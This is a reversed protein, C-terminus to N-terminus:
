WNFFRFSILSCEVLVEWVLTSFWEALCLILISSLHSSTFSPTKGTASSPEQLDIEGCVLSSSMPLHLISSRVIPILLYSALTSFAWLVAEMWYLVHCLRPMKHKSCSRCLSNFLLVQKEHRSWFVIRCGTFASKGGAGFFLSWCDLSAAELAIQLMLLVFPSWLRDGSSSLIHTSISLSSRAMFGWCINKGKRMERTSYNYEEKDIDIPEEECSFFLKLIRCQKERHGHILLPLFRDM